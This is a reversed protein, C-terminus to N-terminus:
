PTVIVSDTIEIPQLNSDAVLNEVEVLVEASGMNLIGLKHAAVYSLDIIRERLFPGRDNVRVM